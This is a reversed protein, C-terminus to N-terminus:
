TSLGKDTLRTPAGFPSDGCISASPEARPSLRGVHIAGSPEETEHRAAECDEGSREGERLRGVIPHAAEFHGFHFLRRNGIARGFEGVEAGVGLTM